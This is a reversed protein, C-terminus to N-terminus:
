EKHTQTGFLNHQFWVKTLLIHSWKSTPNNYTNNTLTFKYPLLTSGCVLMVSTKTFLCHLASPSFKKRCCLCLNSNNCSCTMSLWTNRAVTSVLSFALFLHHRLSKSLIAGGVGEYRRAKLTTLSYTGTTNM